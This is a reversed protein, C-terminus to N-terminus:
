ANRTEITRIWTSGTAVDLLLKRGRCGGVDEGVVPIQAAGLAERAALVNRAGLPHSDAHFAELVSAGGFLKARLRSRHAGLQAVWEILLPVAHEGFRSSPPSGQPLLFHNMGGVRQGADFLCVAVCSGLITTVQAPEASAFLRGPALYVRRVPASEPSGSPAPSGTGTWAPVVHYTV